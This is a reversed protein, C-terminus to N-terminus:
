ADVGIYTINGEDIMGTNELLEQIDNEEEFSLLDCNGPVVCNTKAEKLDIWRPTIGSAKQSLETLGLITLKGESVESKLIIYRM